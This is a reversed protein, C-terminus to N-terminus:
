GDSLRSKIEEIVKKSHGVFYNTDIKIVPRKLFAYHRLLLTKAETEDLDRAKKEMTRFQMSRGNILARYSGADEVMAELQHETLAHKKIDILEAGLANLELEQIIRSCTSCTSLYWVTIEMSEIYKIIKLLFVLRHGIFLLIQNNIRLSSNVCLTLRLTLVLVDAPMFNTRSPVEPDKCESRGSSETSIEELTICIM